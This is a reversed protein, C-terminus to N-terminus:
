IQLGIGQSVIEPGHKVLVEDLRYVMFPEHEQVRM